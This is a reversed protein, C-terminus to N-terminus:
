RVKEIKSLQIEIDNEMEAGQVLDEVERAHLTLNLALMDGVRIDAESLLNSGTVRILQKWHRQRLTPSQLMKM